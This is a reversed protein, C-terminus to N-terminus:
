SGKLAFMKTYQERIEDLSLDSQKDVSNLCSPLVWAGESAQVPDDRQSGQLANDEEM